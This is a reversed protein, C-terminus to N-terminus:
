TLGRGACRRYEVPPVSELVFMQSDEDSPGRCHKWNVANALSQQCLNTGSVAANDVVFAIGFAGVAGVIVV